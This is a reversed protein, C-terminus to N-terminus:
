FTATQFRRMRSPPVLMMSHCAHLHAIRFLTLRLITHRPAPQVHPLLPTRSKPEEGSERALEALGDDVCTRLLSRPLPPRPDLSSPLSLPLSLALALSIPLALLRSRPLPLSLYILPLSLSNREVSGFFSRWDFTSAPESPLAVFTLLHGQRNSQGPNRSRVTANTSLRHPAFVSQTVAPVDQFALGFSRRRRRTRSSGM